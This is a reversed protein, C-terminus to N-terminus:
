ANKMMNQDKLFIIIKSIGELSKSLSLETIGDPCLKKLQLKRKIKQIKEDNTRLFGDPVEQLLEPEEKLADLITKM